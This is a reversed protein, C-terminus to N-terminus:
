PESASSTSAGASTSGDSKSGSTWPGPGMPRSATWSHLASPASQEIVRYVAPKMEELVGGEPISKVVGVITYWDLDIRLKRGLVGGRANVQNVRLKAAALAPNDFPAMAGTSDFAWGIVIPAKASAGDRGATAALASGILALATVVAAAIVWRGRGRM